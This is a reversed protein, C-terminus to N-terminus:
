YRPAFSTGFSFAGGSPLSGGMSHRRREQELMRLMRSRSIKLSMTTVAMGDPQFEQETIAAGQVFTNIYTRLRDRDAIFDDVRTDGVVQIGSIQEAIKRYADVESARLAMLRRQVLNEFTSKPAGYGTVTIVQTDDVGAASQTIANNYTQQAPAQCNACTNYAYPACGSILLAIGALTSFKIINNM